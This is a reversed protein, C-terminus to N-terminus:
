PLNWYRLADVKVTFGPTNAYAILFGTYGEGSLTSDTARGVEKGNIYLVFSNGEMWIGLRHTNNPTNTLEDSAQFGIIEHIEVDKAMRFFGWRGDCTIAMFYFQQGESDSRVTLGVRDEGSCAPLAMQAEIYTNQLKPISVYWSHWNANARAVLNLYGNETFFKAQTYEFDWPSTNGSFDQTWAPNGLMLAPDTLDETHTPTPTLTETFTPTPSTEIIVNTETPAPTQTSVDLQEEAPASATLWIVVQTAIVDLAPETEEIQKCGSFSILLFCLALTLVLKKM